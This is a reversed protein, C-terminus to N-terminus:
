RAKAPSITTVQWWLMEPYQFPTLLYSAVSRVENLAKLQHDMVMLVISVLLCAALKILAPTGQKFLPPPSLQL